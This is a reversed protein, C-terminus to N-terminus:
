FNRKEWPRHSGEPLERTCGTADAESAFGFLHFFSDSGKRNVRRSDLSNKKLFALQATTLNKVFLVFKFQDTWDSLPMPNSGGPGSEGRAHERVQHPADGVRRVISSNTMAAIQSSLSVVGELVALIADVSLTRWFTNPYAFDLKEILRTLVPPPIMSTVRALFEFDSVAYSLRNSAITWYIARVRNVFLADGYQLAGLRDDIDAQLKVADSFARGVGDKFQKWPLQVLTTALERVTPETMFRIVHLKVTMRDMDAGGEERFITEVLELYRAADSPRSLEPLPPFQTRHGITPKCDEEASLFDDDIGQM